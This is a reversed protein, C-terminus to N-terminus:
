GAATAPAPSCGRCRRRCENWPGRARVGPDAVEADAVEADRIIRAEHIDRAFNPSIESPSVASNEDPIKSRDGGSRAIEGRDQAADYEDALRHKAGAELAPARGRCPPFLSRGARLFARDAPRNERRTASSISLPAARRPRSRLGFGPRWREGQDGAPRAPGSTEQGSRRCARPQQHEAARRVRIALRSPGASTTAGGLVILHPRKGVRETCIELFICLKGVTAACANRSHM